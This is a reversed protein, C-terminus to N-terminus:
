CSIACDFHYSWSRNTQGRSVDAPPSALTLALRSLASISAFGVSKWVSASLLDCRIRHRRM